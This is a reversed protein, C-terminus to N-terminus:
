TDGRSLTTPRCSGWEHVGEEREGVDAASRVRTISDKDKSVLNWDKTTKLTQDQGPPVPKLGRYLWVRKLPYSQSMMM